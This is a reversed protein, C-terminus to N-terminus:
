PVGARDPLAVLLYGDDEDRFRTIRFGADRFLGEMHDRPPIRDGKVPGGVERHMQNLIRSGELHALTLVGGPRLLGRFLRLAAPKDDFHPFVCLCFVHDFSAPALPADEVRMCLIRVNSRAGARERCAEAMGPSSDVAVIEGSDGVRGSLKRSLRGTGCGPELVRQGPRIGAADMFGDLKAHEEPTYPNFAWDDTRARDFYRTKEM